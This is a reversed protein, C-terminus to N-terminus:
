ILSQNTWLCLKVENQLYVVNKYSWNNMIISNCELAISYQIDDITQMIVVQNKYTIICIIIKKAVGFHRKCQAFIFSRITM